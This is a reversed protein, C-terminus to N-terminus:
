SAARQFVYVQNIFGGVFDVLICVLNCVCGEVLDGVVEGVVGRSEDKEAIGQCHHASIGEREVRFRGVIQGYVYLM